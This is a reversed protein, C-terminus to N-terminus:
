EDGNQDKNMNFLFKIDKVSLKHLKNGTGEGLAAEALGVKVDQLKLMREEITNEVVLRKVWVSKDQGIRHARDYAQSEAAYNWSLDMNVIRNAAVLNLGVGGCKTSILIVKPGGAGKFTQIAQDRSARDMKGDFRVSRIGYRSFLTELLDLMSTWQSYCITKDGSADWEKLLSLLKLMKTSPEMDDDGKRWTAILAESPGDGAKKSTKRKAPSFKESSQSMYVDESRSSASIDDITLDLTDDDREVRAKKKKPLMINAIDPLDDDSDSAIREELSTQEEEDSIDYGVVARKLTRKRKAHKTLEEDTPQFAISRFVKSDGVNQMEKCTPCPRHGKSAAEEYKKEAALNEKESGNGFEGNHAIPANRMDLLCDFCMEHKCGLIRGTENTLYDGCAPCSSGEEGEEDDDFDLTEAARARLLFMKKVDDVWQRGRFKLARSLEKEAEGALLMTPDDYSDTLSLILNPHCCLQRLRLIMVLVAAHNKVLTREKIFKSLRIKSRSEFSNYLEREEESFELNVIAIDKPPLELIPKGELMSGKTRRLLIPRLIQRAREGALVADESQVRAVHENFDNWDNWPRFRGFRLLGYIDALTNTVPTGTLMWRYKAKVHALSVSSRTSRNRIYQAEDAIVRYFRTQALIGGYEFLWEAEETPGVDKPIAFDGNLTQYTTVIVDYSDIQSKRKIKDKGHHIHVTLTGGTKQEIEEKWQQLLAAPVVILTTRCVESDINPMHLLMTAIMQVTKGLGMDDALIGGKDKSKEKDLMWNVGILQHPLLRIELGPVTDKEDKLGLSKMASKVTLGHSVNDIASTVFQAVFEELKQQQDPGGVDISRIPTEDDYNLSFGGAGGISRRGRAMSSSLFEADAMQQSSSSVVQKARAERLARVRDNTALGNSLQLPRFSDDLANLLRSHSAPANPQM